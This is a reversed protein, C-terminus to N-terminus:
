RWIPRKCVTFIHWKIHTIMCSQSNKSSSVMCSYWFSKTLTIPSLDWEQTEMGREFYSRLRVLEQICASMCNIEKFIQSRKTSSVKCFVFLDARKRMSELMGAVTSSMGTVTSSSRFNLYWFLNNMLQDAVDNIVTNWPRFFISIGNHVRIIILHVKCISQKGDHDPNDSHSKWSTSYSTKKVPECHVRRVAMIIVDYIITWKYRLCQWFFRLVRGTISWFCLEASIVWSPAKVVSYTVMDTRKTPKGIPYKSATNIKM